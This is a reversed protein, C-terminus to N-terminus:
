HDLLALWVVGEMTAILVLMINVGKKRCECFGKSLYQFPDCIWGQNVCSTSGFILGVPLCSSNPDRACLIVLLLDSHYLPTPM